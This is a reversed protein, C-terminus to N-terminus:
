KGASTIVRKVDAATHATVTGTKELLRLNQACLGIIGLMAEKDPEKVSGQSLRHTYSALTSEVDGGRRRFPRSYAIEVVSHLQADSAVAGDYESKARKLAGGIERLLGDYNEGTPTVALSATQWDCQGYLFYKAFDRKYSYTRESIGYGFFYWILLYAFLPIQWLLGLPDNDTLVAISKCATAVIVALLTLRIAFWMTMALHQELWFLTLGSPIVIIVIVAILWGEARHWWWERLRWAVFLLSLTLALGCTAIGVSRPLTGLKFFDVFGLYYVLLLSIPVIWLLKVLGWKQLPETIWNPLHGDPLFRSLRHGVNEFASRLTGELIGRWHWHFWRGIKALIIEVLDALM